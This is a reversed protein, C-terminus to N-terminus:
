FGLVKVKEIQHKCVYHQIFIRITKRYILVVSQSKAGCFERHSYFMLHRWITLKIRLKLQMESKRQKRENEWLFLVFRFLTILHM